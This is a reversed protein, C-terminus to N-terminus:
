KILRRKMLNISLVFLVSTVVLLRASKLLKESRRKAEAKPIDFYRSYVMLNHFVTLDPDLNDEQPAVGIM